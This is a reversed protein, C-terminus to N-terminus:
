RSGELIKNFHEREVLTVRGSKRLESAVLRSIGKGIYKYDAKDSEVTFDSVAIVYEQCLALSASIIFLIICLFLKKM